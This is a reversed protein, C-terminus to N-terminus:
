GRGAGLAEANESILAQAERFGQETGADVYRWHAGMVGRLDLGAQLAGDFVDDITFENGGRGSYDQRKQAFSRWTDHEWMDQALEVMKGDLLAAGWHIPFGGQEFSAKEKHATIPNPWSALPDVSFTGFHQPADTDYLALVCNAIKALAMAQDMSLFPSPQMITDPMAYFILGGRLWPECMALAHGTGLPEEQVAIAYSVEMRDMVRALLQEKGPAALVLIRDVVERMARVSYELMSVPRGRDWGISMLEKPVPPKLRSALGGCPLFGIFDSM